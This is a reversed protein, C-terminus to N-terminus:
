CSGCHRFGHWTGLFRAASQPPASLAQPPQLPGLSSHHHRHRAEPEQQTESPLSSHVRLSWPKFSKNFVYADLMCNMKDKKYVTIGATLNSVDAVQVNPM